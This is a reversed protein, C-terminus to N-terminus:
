LTDILRNSAEGAFMEGQGQGLKFIADIVSLEMATTQIGCFANLDNAVMGTGIVDNGKNVTGACLPVQLLTSLEDIEAVGCMPHVLGGLNSIVAYSGVLPNGAITQRYVEVNLTESIVKETEADLEPHILATRDNCVCVNGLANLKEDVTAIKVHQPLSAKLVAMEEETTSSPVILGNKNGVCMNGIIKTGSITIPIVPVNLENSFTDYYSNAAGAAVLCYDNTIKVFCGIESSAEFKTRTAM